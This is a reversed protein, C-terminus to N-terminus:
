ALSASLRRRLIQAAAPWPDRLNCAFKRFILAARVNRLTAAMLEGRVRPDDGQDRRDDGAEDRAEGRQRM